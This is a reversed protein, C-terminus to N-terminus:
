TTGMNPIFMIRSCWFTLGSRHYTKASSNRAFDTCLRADTDAEGARQGREKERHHGAQQTRYNYQCASVISSTMADSPVVVCVLDPDGDELIHHLLVTTCVILCHRVKHLVKDGHHLPSAVVWADHLDLREVFAIALSVVVQTHQSKDEHHPLRSSSSDRESERESEREGM